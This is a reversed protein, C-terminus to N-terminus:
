LFEMVISIDEVKADEKTTDLVQAIYEECGNKILKAVKFSPVDEITLVLGMSIYRFENKSELYLVIVKEFCWIEVHHAYIWDM